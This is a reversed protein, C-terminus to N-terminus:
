VFSRYKGRAIIKGILRYAVYGTGKSSNSGLPFSRIDLGYDDAMRGFFNGMNGQHWGTLDFIEKATVGQPRLALLLIARSKTGKAPSRRKVPM